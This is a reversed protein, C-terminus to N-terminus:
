GTVMVGHQGAARHLPAPLFIGNPLGTVRVEETERGKRGVAIEHVYDGYKSDIYTLHVSKVQSWPVRRHAQESLGPLPALLAGVVASVVAKTVGTYPGADIGILTPLGAALVFGGFVVGLGTYRHM